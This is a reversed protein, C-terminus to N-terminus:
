PFYGSRAFGVLGTVDLGGLGLTALTPGEDRLNRGLTASAEDILGDIAPTPVGAARGLSSALM